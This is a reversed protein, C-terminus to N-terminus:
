VLAEAVRDVQVRSHVGHAQCRAPNEGSRSVPAQLAGIPQQEIESMVTLWPDGLRAGISGASERLRLVEELEDFPECRPTSTHAYGRHPHADDAGAREAEM